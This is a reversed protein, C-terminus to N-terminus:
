SADAVERGEDIGMGTGRGRNRANAYCTSRSVRGFGSKSVAEPPGYQGLPVSANLSGVFPSDREQLIVGWTHMTAEWKPFLPQGRVVAGALFDVGDIRIEL